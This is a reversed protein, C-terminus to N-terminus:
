RKERISSVSVSDASTPMGVTCCRLVDDGSWLENGNWYMFLAAIQADSFYDQLALWVADPVSLRFVGALHEAWSLVAEECPSFVGSRRWAGVHEEKAMSVGVSRARCLYHRVCLLCGNIQSARLDLLAILHEDLTSSAGAEFCAVNVLAAAHPILRAFDKYARCSTYSTVREYAEGFRVTEM